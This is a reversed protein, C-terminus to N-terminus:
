PGGALSRLGALTPYLLFLLTVPVMLALVPGYTALARRGGESTLDRTLAARYDAGLQTLADGLRGGTDHAHALLTYLRAAEPDATRRANRQLAEAIGHGDSVEELAVNFEQSAVGNSQNTFREVATAVSEGAVIHLAVADTVVPLEFRLQRARRQRRTSLWMGFLLWGAAAGLAALPLTAREPGEVFLDGQALMLGVVAGGVAAAIRRILLESSSWGLGADAVPQSDGREEEARRPSHEPRLYRGVRDALRLSRPATTIMVIGTGVMLALIVSM